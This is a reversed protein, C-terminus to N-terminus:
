RKWKSGLLLNVLFVTAIQQERVRQWADFAERARQLHAFTDTRNFKQTANYDAEHRAQQLQIFANAVTKLDDPVPPTTVEKLHAPLDGSAFPICARKMESHDFARPVLQRLKLDSVLVATAERVLLHFLAYYATSVARHLSAQKPRTSDWRALHDAQELLDDQFSL